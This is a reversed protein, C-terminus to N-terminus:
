HNAIKRFNGVNYPKQIHLFHAKSVFQEFFFKKYFIDVDELVDMLQEENFLISLNLIFFRFSKIFNVDLIKLGFSRSNVVKLM